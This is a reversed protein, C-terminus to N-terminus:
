ERAGNRVLRIGYMGYDVPVDYGRSTVRLEDAPSLCDGGRLVINPHNSNSYTYAGPLGLPDVSATNGVQYLYSDTDYRDWCFERVNGSMDYLGLENPKKQGVPHPRGDSNDAYWAVEDPDDSGAYWHQENSARGKAAYEWEAETPMRYGNAEREWIVRRSGERYCLTLGEKESLWNCYEITDFWSVGFVPVDGRGWGGDDLLPRGTEECYADYQEFTVQFKNVYYSWILLVTFMPQEDFGCDNCGMMFEGNEVHVMEFGSDTTLIQPVSSEVDPVSSRSKYWRFVAAAGVVGALALFEKLFERRSKSM